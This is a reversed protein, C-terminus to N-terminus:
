KSSLKKIVMLIHSFDTCNNDKNIDPVVLPRSGKKAVFRTWMYKYFFNYDNACVCIRLYSLMKGKLIDQKLVQGTHTPSSFGPCLGGGSM